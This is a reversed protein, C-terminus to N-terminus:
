YDFLPFKAGPNVEGPPEISFESGNGVKYPGYAVPVVTLCVVPEEDMTVKDVHLIAACNPSKSVELIDGPQFGKGADVDVTPFVYNVVVPYPAPKRYDDPKVMARASVVIGRPIFDEKRLVRIREIRYSGEIYTLALSQKFNTLYNRLLQSNLTGRQADTLGQFKAYLGRPDLLGGNPADLNTFRRIEPIRGIKRLLAYNRPIEPNGFVHLCIVWSTVAFCLALLNALIWWFYAPRKPPPIDNAKTM